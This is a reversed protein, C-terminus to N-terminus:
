LASCSFRKNSAGINRRQNVVHIAEDILEEGRLVERHNIIEVLLESNGCSNEITGVFHWIAAGDPWPHKEDEDLASQIANRCSTDLSVNSSLYELKDRFLMSSEYFMRMLEENINWREHRVVRVSDRSMSQLDPLKSVPFEYGLHGGFALRFLRQLITFEQMDRLVVQASIDSQVQEAVLSRLEDAIWPFEWPDWGEKITAESAGISQPVAQIIFDLPWLPDNQHAAIKLFNLKADVTYSSERVGSDVSFTAKPDINMLKDKCSQYGKGELCNLYRSVGDFGFGYESYYDTPFCEEDIGCNKAHEEIPFLLNEGMEDILYNIGEVRESPPIRSHIDLLRGLGTVGVRVKQFSAPRPDSEETNGFMFGDVFRDIQIARCAFSTDEFAPHVVVRRANVHFSEENRPAVPQPLTTTVVRGDAAYAMAYHILAKRFIGLDIDKGGRTQLVIQMANDGSAVWKIDVIDLLEDVKGPDRGIVVGGVRASFRIKGFSRAASGLAQGSQAVIEASAQAVAPFLNDYQSVARVTPRLVNQQVKGPGVSKAMAVRNISGPDVRGTRFDDARQEFITPFESQFDAVLRRERNTLLQSDVITIRPKSGIGSIGGSKVIMETFDNAQKNLLLKIAYDDSKSGFATHFIAEAVENQRAPRGAERRLLTWLSNNEKIKQIRPDLLEDVVERAQHPPDTVEIKQALAGKDLREAADRTSEVLVSKRADAAAIEFAARRAKKRAAVDTISRLVDAGVRSRFAHKIYNETHLDDALESEDDEAVPEYAELAQEISISNREALLSLEISQSLTILNPVSSAASFGVFSLFLVLLALRASSKGTFSTAKVVGLSTVAAGVWEHILEPEKRIQGASSADHEELQKLVALEVLEHRIDSESPAVNEEADVLPVSVESKGLRTIKVPLEQEVDSIVQDVYSIFDLGKQRDEDDVEEADLSALVQQKLEKLGELSLPEGEAGFEIVPVKVVKSMYDRNVAEVDAVRKLHQSVIESDSGGLLEVIQEVNRSELSSSIARKRANLAKIWRKRSGSRALIIWLLSLVLLAVVWTTSSVTGIKALAGDLLNRFEVISSIAEPSQGMMKLWMIAFLYCVICSCGALAGVGSVTRLTTVLALSAGARAVDGGASFISEQARLILRKTVLWTCIAALTILVLTIDIDVM